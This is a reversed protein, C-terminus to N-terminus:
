PCGAGFVAFFESVDFFNYVSDGTFDAAPDQASFAALFGSVDFFNLVGDGTFDAPCASATVRLVVTAPESRVNPEGVPNPSDDVRAILRYTFSDTGEFGPDPTYVFSGDADVSVQGNAPPMFETSTFFDMDVMLEQGDIRGPQGIDNAMLGENSDVSTEGSVLYTDDIALRFADNQLERLDGLVFEIYPFSPADSMLVTQLEEEIAFIREELFLSTERVGYEAPQAGDTGNDTLDAYTIMAAVDDSRFGLGGIGPLSRFASRLVESRTLGDAVGLTLYGDFLASMNDLSQGIEGIASGPNDLGDLVIGRMVTRLQALGEITTSEYQPQMFSSDEMVVIRVSAPIFDFITVSGSPYISGTLDGDNGLDNVLTSVGAEIIRDDYFGSGRSETWEQWVGVFNFQIQFKLERVSYIANQDNVNVLLESPDSGGRVTLRYELEVSPQLLRSMLTLQALEDRTYDDNIGSAPRNDSISIEFGKFPMSATFDSVPYYLAEDIRVRDVPPVLPAVPQILSGWPDVSANFSNSLNRSVLELDIANTIASELSYTDNLTREVLGEWLDTRNRTAAALNSIRQGDDIIDEIQPNPNPGVQQSSLMFAFYWPNERALQSYAAAAQSWLAPAAVRSSTIPGVVPTGATSYLGEPIRRLDNLSRAIPDSGLTALANDLTLQQTTPGAPFGESVLTAYTYFFSSSSAFSPEPGSYVLDSGTQQRYNLVEDTRLVLQLLLLDSGFGFLSEEIRELTTRTEAIAVSLDTVDDQLQGIEEGLLQFGGVLTGFISDLKSDVVNFRENMQVRLGEVQQRLEVIQDFIQQEPSPPGDGLSDALGFSGSAIDTLSQVGGWVDGTAYAAGLGAISGLLGVSQEAVVLDNNVQLQLGAFSRAATAIQEVQPYNSQQLLLTRSFIAAREDSIFGFGNIISQRRLELLNLAATHDPHNPNAAARYLDISDLALNPVEEVVGIANLYLGATNQLTDINNFVEQELALHAGDVDRITVFEAYSPLGALGINVSSQQPDIMGLMPTYGVSELYNVGADSLGAVRVGTPDVGALVSTIADATESRNILARVAALDFRAMRERSEASGRLGPLAIDLLEMARQGVRTDTGILEGTSDIQRSNLATAVSGFRILTPDGDVAVSLEGDFAFAFAALQEPTALPNNEAFAWLGVITAIARPNATAELYQQRTYEAARVADVMATYEAETEINLDIASAQGAAVTIALISGTLLKNKRGTLQKLIQPKRYM